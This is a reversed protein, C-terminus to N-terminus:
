SDNSSQPSFPFPWGQPPEGDFKPPGDTLLRCEQAVVQATASIMASSNNLDSIHAFHSLSTMMEIIYLGLNWWMSSWSRCITAFIPFSSAALDPFTFILLM